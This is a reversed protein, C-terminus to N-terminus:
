EHTTMIKNLVPKYLDANEVSEKPFSKRRNKCQTLNSIAKMFKIANAHDNNIYYIDPVRHKQERKNRVLSIADFVNSYLCM